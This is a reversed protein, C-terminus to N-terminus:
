ALDAGDYRSADSAVDGAASVTASASLSGCMALAVLVSKM